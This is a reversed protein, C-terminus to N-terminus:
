IRPAFGQFRSVRPGSGPVGFGLDWIGFGLGGKGFDLGTV